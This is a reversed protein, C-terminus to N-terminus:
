KRRTRTKYKEFYSIHEPFEVYKECTPFPKSDLIIMAESYIKQDVQGLMFDFQRCDDFSKLDIWRNTLRERATLIYM